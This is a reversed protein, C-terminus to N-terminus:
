RTWELFRTTIQQISSLIFQLSFLNSVSYTCAISCSSLNLVLKETSEKDLVMLQLCLWGPTSWPVLHLNDTFIDNVRQPMSFAMPSTIMLNWLVFKLCNLQFQLVQVLKQLYMYISKTSSVLVRMYKFKALTHM